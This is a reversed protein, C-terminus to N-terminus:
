IVFPFRAQTSTQGDDDQVGSLANSPGLEDTTKLAGSFSVTITRGDASLSVGTLSPNIDDTSYNGRDGASAPDVPENFVITCTSDGVNCTSSDAMLEPGDNELTADGLSTVSNGALDAVGSLLKVTAGAYTFTTTSTAGPGLTIVATNGDATWTSKTTGNPFTFDSGGATITISANPAIKVDRSFSLMWVDGENAASNGANTAVTTGNDLGVMSSALRVEPTAFNAPASQPGSGDPDNPTDVAKSTGATPVVIYRITGSSPGTVTKSSGTVPTGKAPEGDDLVGDRDSDEFVQYTVDPQNTPTWSVLVDNGGVSSASLNTIDSYTDTFVSFIDQDDQYYEVELVDGPTLLQTFASHTIGKANNGGIAVEYLDGGSFYFTGASTTFYGATPSVTQVTM